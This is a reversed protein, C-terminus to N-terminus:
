FNKIITKLESNVKKRWIKKNDMQKELKNISLNLDKNKQTNCWCVM